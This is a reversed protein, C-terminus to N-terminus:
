VWKRDSGGSGYSSNRGNGDLMEFVDGAIGDLFPQARPISAWKLYKEGWEPKVLGQKILGEIEDAMQLLNKHKFSGLEGLDKMMEKQEAYIGKMTGGKEARTSEWISKGIKKEFAPDSMQKDLRDVKEMISSKSLLTDFGKKFKGKNLRIVFIESNVMGSITYSICLGVLILFIEYLEM